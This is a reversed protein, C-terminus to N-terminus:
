TTGPRRRSRPRSTATARATRTRRVAAHYQALTLRPDVDVLSDVRSIRPDAALRRSYDYLAALNAPSPRRGPRGSPSCSRRSSARASTRRRAPRLGRAVAGGAAPDLRGPRQVPRPPVALGAAAPLRADPRPGRGSPADGPPRAPGLPRRHGTASRGGPPGRVPRDADGVIALLAPLLTLASLVALGVVIAGAIGVSRLIMFEFLVLGLLGLLVTLGSFFVARGATAVTMRVAEAVRTRATRGSRGAGRPVPEDDAALLRGGARPGAADGPQARLHEDADAVRRRLDGALAVIVAAGGVVLPVGAAVVRGSCSAAAGARGAAALHGRESAPGGRVRDPRRRLLGARRGARGDARAGDHLRERLIPLADPSDDPRCTSSSSTTPPTGTPRSRARRWCTRCSGPSTRRARRHRARRAAAAARVGPTGALLPRAASLRHGAGLAPRRARDRPAGEGPGVGPRRPHVRRREAPRAGAPAFPIAVLSCRRGLAGVVWWARRVVFRGLRDFPTVDSRVRRDSRLAPDPAQDDPGGVRDGAGAWRSADRAHLEEQDGELLRDREADRRTMTIVIIPIM